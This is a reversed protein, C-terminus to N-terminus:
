FTNLNINPYSIYLVTGVSVKRYRVALCQMKTYSWFGGKHSTPAPHRFIKIIYFRPPKSATRAKINKLTKSRLVVNMNNRLLKTFYQISIIFQWMQPIFKKNRFKMWVRTTLWQYLRTSHVFLGSNRLLSQGTTFPKRAV